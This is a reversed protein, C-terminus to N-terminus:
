FSRFTCPALHEPQMPHELHLVTCRRRSMRYSDLFRSDLPVLGDPGSRAATRARRRARRPRRRPRAHRRPLPVARRRHEPRRPGGPPALRRDADRRRGRADERRRLAALRAVYEQELSSRIPYRQGHIEVPISAATTKWAASVSETSRAARADRRGAHPHRRARGCARCSPPSRRARRSGGRM